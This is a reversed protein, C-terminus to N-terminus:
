INSLIRELKRVRDGVGVVCVSYLQVVNHIDAGQESCVVV